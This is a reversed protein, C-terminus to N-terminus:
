QDRNLLVKLSQWDGSVRRLQLLHLGPTFDSLEIRLESSFEEGAAIMRGDLDRLEWVGIPGSDSFVSFQGPSPNPSLVFAPESPPELVGTHLVGCDSPATWVQDPRSADYIGVAYDGPLFASLEFAGRGDTTAGWVNLAYDPYISWEEGSYSRYLLVVSDDSNTMLDNDLYGGSTSALGNFLLRGTAVFGSGM